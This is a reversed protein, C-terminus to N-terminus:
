WFSDNFLLDNRKPCYRCSAPRGTGSSSVISTVRVIRAADGGAEAASKSSAWFWFGPGVARGNRRTNKKKLEM